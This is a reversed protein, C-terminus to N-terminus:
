PINLIRSRMGKVNWRTLTPIGYAWARLNATATVFDLADDDDKDFSLAGGTGLRSALKQM